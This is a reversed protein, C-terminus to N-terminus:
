KTLNTLSNRRSGKGHIFILIYIINMCANTSMSLISQGSVSSTAQSFQAAQVDDVVAGRSRPAPPEASCRGSRMGGQGRSLSRSPARAVKSRQCPSGSGPPVIGSATSPNASQARTKSSPLSNFTSTPDASRSTPPLVRRAPPPCPLGSPRKQDTVKRSCNTRPSSTNACQLSANGASKLTSASRNVASASRATRGPVPITRAQSRAPLMSTVAKDDSVNVRKSCHKLCEHSALM